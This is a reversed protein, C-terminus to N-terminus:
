MWGNIWIKNCRNENALNLSIKELVKYDLYIEHLINKKMANISKVNIKAWANCEGGKSEHKKKQKIKTYRKKRRNM